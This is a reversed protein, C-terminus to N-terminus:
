VAVLVSDFEFLTQPAAGNVYQARVNPLILLSELPTGNTIGATVAVTNTTYWTTGTRSQQINLTGAVDSAAFARFRSNSGSLQTIGNRIGNAALVASNEATRNDSEGAIGLDTVVGDTFTSPAIAAFEDDSLIVTVPGNYTQQNPLTVGTFGSNVLVNHAM